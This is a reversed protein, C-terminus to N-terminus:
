EESELNCEIGYYLKLDNDDYRFNDVMEELFLIKSYTYRLSKLEEEIEDIEHMFDISMEYSGSKIATKQLGKVIKKREKCRNADRVVNEKATELFTEKLEIPMSYTPAFSSLYECLLNNCSCSYFPVYDNENKIYFDMYESM